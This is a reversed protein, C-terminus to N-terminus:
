NKQYTEFSIIPPHQGKRLSVGWAEHELYGTYLINDMIRDVRSKGIGKSNRYVLEPYRDMFRTMEVKTQFRGTAFGELAEQM